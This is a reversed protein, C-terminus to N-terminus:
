SVTKWLEIIYLFSDYIKPTRLWRQSMLTQKINERAYFVGKEFCVCNTDQSNVKVYRDLKM